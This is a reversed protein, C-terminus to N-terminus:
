LVGMFSLSILLIFLIVGLVPIGVVIFLISVITAGTASKDKKSIVEELNDDNAKLAKLSGTFRNTYLLVHTDVGKQIYVEASRFSMKFKMTCDSEIPIAVQLNNRVSGCYVGNKYIEVPMSLAYAETYGHVTVYDVDGNSQVLPVKKVLKPRAKSMPASHSGVAPSVAASNTKQSIESM